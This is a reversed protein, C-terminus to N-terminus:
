LRFEIVPVRREINERDEDLLDFFFIVLPDYPLYSGNQKV